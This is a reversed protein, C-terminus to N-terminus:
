PKYNLREVLSDLWVPQNNLYHNQNHVIDEYCREFWAHMDQSQIKEIAKRVALWRQTNDYILDYSNDIAHDFTRYGARRLTALSGVAGVIVFPQAYKIAKYTKETIFAGGSQDTDFLTEIV